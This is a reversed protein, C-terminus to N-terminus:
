TWLHNATSVKQQSELLDRSMCHGFTIKTKGRGSGGWSGLIPNWSLWRVADASGKETGRQNKAALSNWYLLAFQYVQKNLDRLSLTFALTSVSNFTAQSTYREKELAPWPIRKTFLELYAWISRWLGHRSRSRGGTVEGCGRSRVINVKLNHGDNWKDANPRWFEMTSIFYFTCTTFWESVAIQM